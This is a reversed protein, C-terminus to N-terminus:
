IKKITPKVFKEVKLAGCNSIYDFGHSPDKKFPHGYQDTKTKIYEELKEKSEVKVVEQHDYEPTAFIHDSKLYYYKIVRKM